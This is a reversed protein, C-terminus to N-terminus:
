EDGFLPADLYESQSLCYTFIGQSHSGELFCSKIRILSFFFFFVFLLLRKSMFIFITEM